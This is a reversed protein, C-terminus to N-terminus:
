SQHKGAHVCFGHLRSVSVLEAAESLKAPKVSVPAIYLRHRWSWRDVAPKAHKAKHEGVRSCVARALRHWLRFNALKQLLVAREIPLCFDHFSTSAWSSGCQDAVLCRPLMAKRLVHSQSRAMFPVIQTVPM